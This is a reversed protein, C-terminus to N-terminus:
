SAIQYLAKIKQQYSTETLMHIFMQNRLTATLPSYIMYFSSLTVLILWILFVHCHVYTVGLWVVRLLQQGM